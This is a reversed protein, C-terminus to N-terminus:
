FYFFIDATVVALNFVYFYFVYTFYGDSIGKIIKGAIGFIYGIWIAALFIFSKGKTTRAKYSKVVSFPWSIGFCAVMVAELATMVAEM